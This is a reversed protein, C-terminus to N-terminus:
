FVKHPPGDGIRILGLFPHQANAVLNASAGYISAAGQKISAGAQEAQAASALNTAADKMFGEGIGAQQIAMAVGKQLADMQLSVGTQRAKTKAAAVMAASSDM